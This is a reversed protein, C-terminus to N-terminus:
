SKDPSTGISLIDARDAIREAQLQLETYGTAVLGVLIVCIAMVLWDMMMAGDDDALFNRLSM